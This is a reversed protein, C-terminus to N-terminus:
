DNGNLVGIKKKIAPLVELMAKISLKELEDMKSTDLANLNTEIIYLANAANTDPGKTASVYFKNIM